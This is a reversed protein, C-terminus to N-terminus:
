SLALDRCVVKSYTVSSATTDGQVEAAVLAKPIMCGHRIDSAQTKVM